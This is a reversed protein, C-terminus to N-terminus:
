QVSFARVDTILWGNTGRRLQFETEVENAVPRGVRPVMRRAVLARVTATDSAVNVRPERAEIEYATMGAFTRRLQEVQNPALTPFVQLVGGVDLAKYAEQYRRLVGVVAEADSPVAPVVRSANPAPAASAAEAAPPTAAAAPGM